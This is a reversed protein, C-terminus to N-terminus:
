HLSTHKEKILRGPLGEYRAAYVVIDKEEFHIQEAKALM